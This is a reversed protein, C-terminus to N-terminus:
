KGFFECSALPRTSSTEMVCGVSSLHLLDANNQSLRFARNHIYLGLSLSLVEQTIEPSLKFIRFICGRCVKFTM